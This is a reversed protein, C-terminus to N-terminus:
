DLKSPYGNITPPAPVGTPISQGKMVDRQLALRNITTDIAHRVRRDALPNPQGAANGTRLMSTVNLGLLIVRNEPGIKVTTNQSKSLVPLSEVPVDQLFDVTGQTLAEVREKAGPIVRYVLETIEPPTDWYNPNRKLVTEKGPTRSALVFPRTGNATSVVPQNGPLHTTTWQRSMIFVDTLQIPLLPDRGRTEIQVTHSDIKRIHAIGSLRIAIDSVPSRARGLSFVVDDATLATGDHFAVGKRINFTWIKPNESVSWSDALAPQVKGRANRIVLPEYIHHNFAHTPGENRAHPDLTLADGSRAWVLRSADGPAALLPLCLLSGLMLRFWYAM